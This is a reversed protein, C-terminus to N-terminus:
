CSLGFTIVIDADNRHCVVLFEATNHCFLCIHQEFMNETINYVLM